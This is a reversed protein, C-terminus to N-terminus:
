VEMKLPTLDVGTYEHIYRLVADLSNDGDFLKSAQLESLGLAQESYESVTGRDGNPLVIQGTFYGEVAHEWSDPSGYAGIIPLAGDELAVKGAICCATGCHDVKSLSARRTIWSGQEWESPLGLQKRFDQGIAWVGLKILREVNVTM